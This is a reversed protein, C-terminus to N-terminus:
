DDLEDEENQLKELFREQIFEKYIPKQQSNAAVFHGGSHKLVVPDEFCESLDASMEKPIIEDNEGFVHLSPITIKDSYYKKHPLCDSKFASFFIVFNFKCKTLNRQQLDCLLGTFCGGQSFSVIGDFPGHEKFTDEIFRLSEEFGIAPGGKRIGRYTHDDRNFFWGFQETDPSQGININADTDVKIVKHPATVYTFDAWKGIIKRFSGTKQRFAEGNQRYGHICLLKLKEQLSKKLKPSFESM